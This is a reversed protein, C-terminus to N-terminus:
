CRLTGSGALVVAAAARRRPRHHASGPMDVLATDSEAGIVLLPSTGTRVFRDGLALATIGGAEAAYVDFSGVMPLGLETQVLCATSPWYVDPSTTGVLVMRIAAPELHAAELAARAAQVALSPTSIGLDGHARAVVGTCAAGYVWPAGPQSPDPHAIGLGAIATAVTQRRTPLVGPM